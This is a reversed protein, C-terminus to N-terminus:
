PQEKRGSADEAALRLDEVLSLATQLVDAGPVLRLTLTPTEGASLTLIRRYKALGCVPLVAEPQFLGLQLKLQSGKQTLDTIGVQSAAARLLAVDLLTLVSKPADGYRDLMEDLLDSADADTRIAAIRRLPELHTM